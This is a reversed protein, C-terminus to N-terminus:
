WLILSWKWFVAENRAYKDVWESVFCCDPFYCPSIGGKSLSEGNSCKFVFNSNKLVSCVYPCLYCIVLLMFSWNIVYFPGRCSVSAFEEWCTAISWDGDELELFVVPYALSKECMFTWDCRKWDFGDSQVLKSLFLWSVGHYWGWCFVVWNFYPSM